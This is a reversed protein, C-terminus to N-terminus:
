KALDTIGEFPYDDRVFHLQDDFVFQGRLGESRAAAAAPEQAEAPAVDFLPGFVQNMALFSAAMGSASRLFGRRDLGLRRGNADAIEGIRAEVQRQAATQPLPNFEGNSVM